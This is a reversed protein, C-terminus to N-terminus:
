LEVERRLSYALYPVIVVAVMLLMIISIAAGQAYHNGQFTTEFMFIGPVDTAFAPGKGTM